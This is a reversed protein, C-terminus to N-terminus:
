WCSRRWRSGCCATSASPTRTSRARSCWRCCSSCRSTSRTPPASRCRAGSSRRPSRACAVGALRRIEDEYIDLIADLSHNAAFYGQARRSARTWAIDDTMLRSLRAAADDIDAAVDYVREGEHESGTDIFAVSPVGRSWAQLFTNPFGEYESTNLLVRAGDFLRDAEAFPVFERVTVNPLARAAARIGESYAVGRAHADNGGVLMFRQGPMRRALEIFLEPRKQPRLTAIWLVYGRPDCKAGAPPAYCNPVIRAERGYHQLANDRQFPNQAFVTDVRRLGYEFIMRDRTYSIEQRGPVFDVDSAGAYISRKGYRRCFAAVFGTTAASTRQYYIDAEARKLARWLSTLRPHLFRVVPLGEDPTHINHVRVGDVESGDPQGFDMSVMSVECGRRALGKAVLSQQLEAGGIVPIHSMGALLPWGTPAVFCVRVPRTLARPKAGERRTPAPTEAFITSM